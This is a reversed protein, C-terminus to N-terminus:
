GNRWPILVGHCYFFSIGYRGNGSIWKILWADGLLGGAIGLAWGYLAPPLKIEKIIKSVAVVAGSVSGVNNFVNIIQKTTRSNLNVEWGIRPFYKVGQKGVVRSSAFANEAFFSNFCFVM